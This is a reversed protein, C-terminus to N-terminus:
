NTAVESAPTGPTQVAVTTTKMTGEQMKIFKRGGTSAFLQILMAVFGSWGTQHNAGLGTGNDGHFYEYFLLYDRWHPDTQFKGAEDYLPRKQNENRMFINTLRHALEGAVESLNMSCLISSSSYSEANFLEVVFNELQEGYFPVAAFKGSRHNNV